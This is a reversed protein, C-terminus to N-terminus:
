RRTPDAGSVVQFQLERRVPTRRGTSLAVGVRYVGPDVDKLPLAVTISGLGASLESRAIRRRELERTTGSPDVLHWAVDVAQASGSLRVPVAARVEMHATVESSAMPVVELPPPLRDARAVGRTGTVGLM